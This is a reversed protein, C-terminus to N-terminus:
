TAAEFIQSVEAGTNVTLRSQLQRNAISWIETEPLNSTTKALVTRTGSGEPGMVMNKLRM